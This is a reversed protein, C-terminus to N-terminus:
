TLVYDAEPDFVQEVYAIGRLQEVLYRCEDLIQAMCQRIMVIGEVSLARAAIDAVPMSFPYPAIVELPVNTVRANALTSGCRLSALIFAKSLTCLVVLHPYDSFRGVFTVQPCPETYVKDVTVIAKDHTIEM